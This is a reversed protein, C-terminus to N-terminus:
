TNGTQQQILSFTVLALSLLIVFFVLSRHELRKGANREIVELLRDSVLYLAVAVVTFYVISVPRRM